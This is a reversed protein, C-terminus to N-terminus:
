RRKSPPSSPQRRAFGRAALAVSGTWIIVLMLVLLVAIFGFLDPAKMLTTMLSDEYYFFWENEPPFIVDHLWYFVKVPGIALVIVTVSVLAAIFGLLIRRVTPFRQRQWYAYGGLALMVLAGTLGAIYFVDILHAVDELHIAEAERLLPETSGDPLPYHIDRLGEGGSQVARTIEGFLALHEEKGTQEFHDKYRNAPGFRAIHEDIALAPYALAYGYNVQALLHWALLSAALLHGTLLLPWLLYRNFGNM